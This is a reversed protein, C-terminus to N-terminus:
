NRPWLAPNILREEVNSGLAEVATADLRVDLARSMLAASEAVQQVDEAGVVLIGGKFFQAGFGVALEAPSRGIQRCLAHFRDLYPRAFAMSAPVSEPDMLLLGQLYISRVMLIKRKARATELWGNRLIRQDLINGPAQILSVSDMALAQLMENDAGISVGGHVLLGRERCIELARAAPEWSTLWEGRHALMGYLKPVGLKDLSGEVARVLTNTDTRDADPHFKSVVLAHESIGLHRFCEGLVAESAGYAQATDFIRIGSEWAKEIIRTAASLNPRGSKNAIGYDLGLQVTGLALRDAINNEGHAQREM